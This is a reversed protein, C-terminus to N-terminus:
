AGVSTGADVDVLEVAVHSFGLSAAIRGVRRRLDDDALAAASDDAPHLVALRARVEVRCRLGLMALEREFADVATREGNM